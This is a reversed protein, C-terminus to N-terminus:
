AQAWCAATVGETWRPHSSSPARLVPRPPLAPRSQALTLFLRTLPGAGPEVLEELQAQGELGTPLLVEELLGETQEGM